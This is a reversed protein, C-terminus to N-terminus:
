LDQGGGAYEAMIRNYEIEDLQVTGVVPATSIDALDFTEPLGTYGKARFHEDHNRLDIALRDDVLKLDYYRNM